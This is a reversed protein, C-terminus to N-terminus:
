VVNAHLLGVSEPVSYRIQIRVSGLDNSERGDKSVARVCFEYSDSTLVDTEFSYYRPGTYDLRGSAVEYDVEGTGGDWYVNFSVPEAGQGMSCYYWLLRVRPGAVQRATLAFVENCGPEILNGQEDFSVKVVARFTLEEQGCINARRLVYVYSSLSQHAAFAPVTISDKVVQRTALITDFDITESNPGRYLNQCGSIRTWFDGGTLGLCLKVGNASDGEFLSDFFKTDM